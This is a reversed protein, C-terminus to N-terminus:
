SKGKSRVRTALLGASQEELIQVIAKARTSIFNHLLLLPIACTLGLVTTVLAQSIGGAMLKPDGTGFLTISQFTAIMGTVTGLLGLLPGVAFLVKLTGIGREIPPVVRMLTEDLKLELAETNSDPNELFVKMIEGLPNGEIPQSTKLQLDIVKKKENLVWLREGVLVLGVALLVLIIYGVLGGQHVREMFSPAQVLMSLLAGRSPDISFKIPDSSTVNSELSSASSLHRSSPQRGLQVVQQTEPQWVLYKGDSVLNFTGVRTITQESREGGPLVVQGKFQSVKGSETMEKQLTFWLQELEAISPLEKRMALEEALKARGPFEASVLSNDMQGKTDGAVQKVVGFLEGLTGMVMALRAELDSLEKENLEFEKTLQVTILEEKKLDAKVANLLAKQKDRSNIFEQEREKLRPIQEVQDRQISQLLQDLTMATTKKPKSDTQADQAFSWGGFSMSVLLTTARLISGFKLLQNATKM